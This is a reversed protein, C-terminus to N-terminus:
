QAGGTPGLFPRAAKLVSGKSRAAEIPAPLPNAGSLEALIAAHRSETGAIAAAAGLVKYSQIRTVQGHYASVALEELTSATKLWTAKDAFTGKPYSFRPKAAPKGGLAKITATMAAVHDREHQVIPRVLELERGSLLGSKVGKAFFDSELHELTLAYNLIGIDTADNSASALRGRAALALSGGAGTVAAWRLFNRRDRGTRFQMVPRGGFLQETM